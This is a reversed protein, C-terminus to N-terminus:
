KSSKKKTEQLLSSSHGWLIEMGYVNRAYQIIYRCSMEAGKIPAYIKMHSVFEASLNYLVCTIM